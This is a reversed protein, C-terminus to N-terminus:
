KINEQLPKSKGGVIDEIKLAPQVKKEQNLLKEEIKEKKTEEQTKSPAAKKLKKYKLLSFSGLIEERKLRKICRTCLVVRVAVGNKLVKLKQLNPFFIRRLRNKAHSVMHGVRRKKECHQCFSAM